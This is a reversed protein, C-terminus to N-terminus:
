RQPVKEERWVRTIVQFFEPFVTPDQHLGLKLHEVPLEDSAVAKSNGMSRLVAAIEEVM